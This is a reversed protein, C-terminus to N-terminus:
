SQSTPLARLLGNLLRGVTHLRHTLAELQQPTLYDLGGALMLLTDLEALSGRAIHLHHRYELLSNRGHGEAINAPVSVAARQLQSTIGYVESKPFSRTARYVELVLSMGDQWVLLDRHSRIAAKKEGAM